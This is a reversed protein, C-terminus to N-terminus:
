GSDSESPTYAINYSSLRNVRIMAQIEEVYAEGRESYRLLGEALQSGTLEAGEDRLEARIARLERYASGSNITRLYYHVGDEVSDFSRVEHTLGEDRFLPKIGCGPSFCWIGFFNRAETAFRSTGWASENAAQALILSAPVTDVRLLLEDLVARDTQNDRKVRYRRALEEVFAQDDAILTDSDQYTEAVGVLRERRAMVRMNASRVMPLLYEFFATKKEKVNSYSSFDPIAAPRLTVAPVPPSPADTAPAPVERLVAYAVLAILMALCFPIILLDIRKM